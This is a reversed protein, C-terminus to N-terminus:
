STLVMAWIIDDAEYDNKFTLTGAVTDLLVEDETPTGTGIPVFKDDGEWSVELIHAITLGKLRNDQITNGGIATSFDIRFAVPNIPPIIIGGTALTRDEYTAKFIINRVRIGDERKESSSSVRKMPLMLLDNAKWDQLILYLKSEMEYYFLAKERVNLPALSNSSSFNGMYLKLNINMEAWQAKLQRQIYNTSIYDILVGTDPVAPRIDYVDIQGMDQEVYRIGPIDPTDPLATLIRAQLEILLTNFVSTM